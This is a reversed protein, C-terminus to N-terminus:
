HSNICAAVGDPNQVVVTRRSAFTDSAEAVTKVTGLYWFVAHSRPCYWRSELITAVRWAFPSVRGRGDGGQLLQGRLEALPDPPASLSGLRPRPRLGLRFQSRLLGRCRLQPAYGSRVCTCCHSTRVCICIHLDVVESSMVIFITCCALPPTFGIV